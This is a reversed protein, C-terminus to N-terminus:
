VDVNMIIIIIIIVCYHLLLLTNVFGVLCVELLNGASM